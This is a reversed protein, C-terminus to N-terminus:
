YPKKEYPAEKFLLIQFYAFGKVFSLRNIPYLDWFGVSIKWVMIPESPSGKEVLPFM